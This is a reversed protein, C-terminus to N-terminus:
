GNFFQQVVQNANNDRLYRPDGEAIINKTHKDLVIVRQAVRCISRIEHTVIIITTGLNQNLRVILHDLEDSAMPDLGASPEDFFLIEPNLAMARAIGARKKMGGSVESPMHNGYDELDVLKLKMKVLTDISKSSLDTYERIPLAVNEALTMSNFLAAGQYLIGIKRLTKRLLSEDCQAIDDGDIIIHGAMPKILGVLHKLLTTKGCGSGGMIALIEGQLVDFSVNKLITHGNYGAVLNKVQVICAKKM